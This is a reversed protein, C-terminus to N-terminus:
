LNPKQKNRSKLTEGKLKSVNIIIQGPTPRKPSMKNPVTKAEHIQIDIEKRLNPFNRAMM